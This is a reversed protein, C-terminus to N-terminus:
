HQPGLLPFGLPGQKTRLTGLAGQQSIEMAGGLFLLSLRRM